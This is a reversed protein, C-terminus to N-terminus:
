AYCRGSLVHVEGGGDQDVSLRGIHEGGAFCSPSSRKAVHLERFNEAVESDTFDSQARMVHSGHSSKTAGSVVAECISLVGSRCSFLGARKLRRAECPRPPLCFVDAM